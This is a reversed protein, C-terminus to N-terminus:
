IKRLREGIAMEHQQHHLALKDLISLLTQKENEILNGVVEKSVQGMRHYSQGITKKGKETIIILKSRKDTPNNMEKALGHEVLRRIIDMGTTKGDMGKNILETKTLQGHSSLHALYGFEEVTNLPLGEMVIKSYIRAYKYMIGL